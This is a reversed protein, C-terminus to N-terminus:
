NSKQAAIDRISMVVSSTMQRRGIYMTLGTCIFNLLFSVTTVAKM